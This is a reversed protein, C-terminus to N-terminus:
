KNLYENYFKTVNPLWYVNKNNPDNKAGIPCYVPQIKEITDLGKDFYRNKLLTVFGDLGEEYSAYIKIGYSAMVGGFNNKDIFAPSKWHGTEHKSIAVIMISQEHSLGVEIGKNYIDREINNLSNITRLKQLEYKTQELEKKLEVYSKNEESLKTNKNILSLIKSDKLEIAIKNEKNIDNAVIVNHTAYVGTISGFILLYVITIKILKPTKIKSILNPIVIYGIGYLGIILRGANRVFEKLLWIIIAVLGVIFSVIERLYIKGIKKAVKVWKTDNKKM